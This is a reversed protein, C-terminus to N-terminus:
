DSLHDLFWNVAFEAVRELTGPEEFLHTAGPVIEIRHPATM